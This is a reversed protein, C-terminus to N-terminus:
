PASAVTSMVHCNSCSRTYPLPMAKGQAAEDITYSAVGPDDKRPTIFTHDFIDNQFYQVDGDSSGLQGAGTKGTQNMHCNVCRFAADPRLDEVLEHLVHYEGGPGEDLQDDSHCTLCLSNDDISAVLGRPNDLPDTHGGHIDHCNTCAVLMRPNAYKKSKRLDSYQQRNLKSHIGGDWFDTNPDGDARTVYQSRWTTRSSGPPMMENDQNLPPEGHIGLSDNGEPRSHCQGCIAMEREAALYGPQVIFQGPRSSYADRHEMGPGHCIECGLNGEVRQEPTKWPIGGASAFATSELTTPDISFGTFHCSSCHADFSDELEPVKFLKTNTDWFHSAYFDRWPWRTRDSGLPPETTGGPQLTVPPFVFYAGSKTLPEEGTDLRSIFRQKHIFGGYLYDLDFIRNNAPDNAEIVLNQFQVRLQDGDKFLRYAFEATAPPSGGEQVKFKDQSRNEDYDYFYLTSDAAFKALAGADAVAIREPSQLGAAQGPQHIGNAHAHERWTDKQAHCGLCGGSGIYNRAAFSSPQSSVRIDLEGVDILDEASMSSRSASGGPLHVPDTAPDPAVYIYYQGSPLVMFYEGDENTVAQPFTSGLVDILDELPEDFRDPVESVLDAAFIPTWAVLEAPIAYITAGSVPERATDTVRGTFTHVALDSESNCGVAPLSLLASGLLFLALRRTVPAAARNRLYPIPMMSSEYRM